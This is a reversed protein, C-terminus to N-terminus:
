MFWIGPSHDSATRRRTPLFMRFFRVAAPHVILLIYASVPIARIVIIRHSLPFRDGFSSSRNHTQLHVPHFSDSISPPAFHDRLRRIGIGWKPPFPPLQAM